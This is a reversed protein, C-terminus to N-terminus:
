ISISIINSIEKGHPDDDMWGDMENLTAALFFGCSARAVVGRRERNKLQSGTRMITGEYVRGRM